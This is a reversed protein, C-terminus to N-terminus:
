PEHDIHKPLVALLQIRLVPVLDADDTPDGGRNARRPEPLDHVLLVPDPLNRRGPRFAIPGYRAVRLNDHKPDLSAGHDNGREIFQQGSVLRRTLGTLDTCPTITTLKPITTRMIASNKNTAKQHHGASPPRFRLSNEHIEHGDENNDPYQDDNEQQDRREDGPEVALDARVLREDDVAEAPRLDDLSATLDDPRHDLLAALERQLQHAKIDRRRLVQVGILADGHVDLGHGLDLHLRVRDTDQRRGLLEERHVVRLHLAQDPQHHFTVQATDDALERDLRDHLLRLHDGVPHPRVDGLVHGLHAELDHRERDALHGIRVFVDKVHALRVDRDHPPLGIDGHSLGLAIGRDPAGLRHPFSTDRLGRGLLLLNRGLRQALRLLSLGDAVELHLLRLVVARDLLLPGDGLLGVLDLGVHLLLADNGLLDADLLNTLFTFNRDLLGLDGAALLLEDRRHQLRRLSLLLADLREGLGIALALNEPRLCLGLLGPEFTLGLRINDPELTAGLSLDDLRLSLGLRM